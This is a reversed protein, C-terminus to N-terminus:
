DIFNNLPVRSLAVYVAGTPRTDSEYLIIEEASGTIPKIQRRIVTGRPFGRRCRGLTLHGRFRKREPKYGFDRVVEEVKEALRTLDSCDPVLAAIVSPKSASPFAVIENVTYDFANVSLRSAMAASLDSVISVDSNGLFRLTLHISDPELWRIQRAWSESKMPALSRLLRKLVIQDPKIAVFLRVPRKYDAM